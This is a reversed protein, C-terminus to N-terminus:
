NRVENIYQTVARSIASFDTSKYLADALPKTVSPAVSNIFLIVALAAASIICKFLFRKVPKYTNTPKKQRHKKRTKKM